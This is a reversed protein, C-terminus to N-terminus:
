LKIPDFIKYRTDLCAQIHSTYSPYFSLYVLQLNFILAVSEPLLIAGRVKDTAEMTPPSTSPSEGPPPVVEEFGARM